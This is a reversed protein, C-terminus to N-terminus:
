LADIFLLLARLAYYVIYGAALLTFGILFVPVEHLSRYQGSLFYFALSFVGITGSIAMVLVFTSWLESPERSLGSLGGPEFFVNLGGGIVWLMLINVIVALVVVVFVRFHDSVGRSPIPIKPGFLSDTAGMLRSIYPIHGRSYNWGPHLEPSTRKKRPQLFRKDLWRPRPSGQRQKRAGLAAVTGAPLAWSERLKQHKTSKWFLARAFAIGGLVAVSIMGYYFKWLNPRLGRYVIIRFPVAKGDIRKPEYKWQKVAAILAEDAEPWPADSHIRVYEVDGQANVMLELVLHGPTAESRRPWRPQIEVLPKPADPDHEYFVHVEEQADNQSILALLVFLAPAGFSPM